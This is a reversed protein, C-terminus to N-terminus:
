NQQANLSDCSLSSTSRGNQRREGGKGGGGGGGRVLSGDVLLLRLPKGSRAASRCVKGWLCGPRSEGAEYLVAGIKGSRDEGCVYVWPSRM